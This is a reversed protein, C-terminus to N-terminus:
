VWLEKNKAKTVLKDFVVDSKGVGFELYSSWELLSKRSGPAWTPDDREGTTSPPPNNARTIKVWKWWNACVAVAFVANQHPNDAFLYRAQEEADSQALALMKKLQRTAGKDQRWKKIEVIVPIYPKTSLKWKSGKTRSLYVVAFDPIRSKDGHFSALSNFSQDVPAVGKPSIKLSAFSQDIPTLGDPYDGDQLTLSIDEPEDDVEEEDIDEEGDVDDLHWLPYQPAVLFASAMPFHENLIVNWLGYWPLERQKLNTHKSYGVDTALTYKTKYDNPETM